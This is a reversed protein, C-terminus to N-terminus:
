YVNIDSIMIQKTKESKKTKFNYWSNISLGGIIDFCFANKLTEVEDESLNFKVCDFDQTSLKVHIEKMVKCATKFMGKILFQPEKFGEGVVFTLKMLEELQEWTIENETLELDVIRETILDEDKILEDFLKYIKNIYEKDKIEIGFSKEHGEGLGLNNDNIIQRMKLSCCNRASGKYTNTEKDKSLIITPKNYKNMINNAILGNLTQTNEKTELIEIIIKHSDDISEDLDSVIKSQISKRQENLKVNDKILQKVQKEDDLLFIAIINEIKNLRIISNIFPAVYFSIDTSNPRFDKKLQKLILKLNPDCNNNMKYLGHQMLYRTELNTCNMMDGILGVACIDLFNKAYDSKMIEDIAECTKFCVGAGSLFKNPYDNIQPNVIIAYPNDSDQEHHDLIVIDMYKSVEKCEEVSNTSSDVIILLDLDQPINNIIIGHNDKRQHFLIKSTIDHLKLYKYMITLSTVGDTDIDGYIGVKKKNKIADVIKDTVEKMNSLLWPSHLNERSPNMFEEKDKIGRIKLIKDVISDNKDYKILPEIIKYNM